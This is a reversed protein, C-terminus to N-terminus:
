DAKASPRFYGFMKIPTKPIVDQLPKEGPIKVPRRLWNRFPFKMREYISLNGLVEFSGQAINSRQRPRLDKIGVAAAIKRYYRRAEAEKMQGKDVLREYMGTLEDANLRRLYHEREEKTMSKGRLLELQKERTRRDYWIYWVQGLIVLCILTFLLEMQGSLQTYEWISSPDM